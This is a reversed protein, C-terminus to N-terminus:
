GGEAGSHHDSASGALVASSAATNSVAISRSTSWAMVEMVALFPTTV